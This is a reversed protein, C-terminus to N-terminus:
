PAALVQRLQTVVSDSLVLPGGLVVIRRPQLALLAKDTVTPLSAAQTLLLPGGLQGAAAGGTLADPYDYGNAVYAVPVGAPLLASIAAATAYRDPGAIRDVTSGPLITRIAALVADAVVLTGGLVHVTGPKLRALETATSEPLAGYKTLLVPGGLITGVAGAALGDPMDDGSVVFAIPAGSPFAGSSVAAATAYRDGGAWRDLTVGPLLAQVAAVVADSVVASGGLVIVRTPALRKLETATTSPLTTAQTLLIPAGLLGAAPGGALADVLSTGSTLFATSSGGPELNASVATATGYRDSGYLRLVGFSAAIAEWYGSAGRDYGLAWMGAGALGQSRVLAYKALLSRENDFYTEQWAQTTPDQVAFWASQEVTDYQITTGSPLTALDTGPFFASGGGTTSAHLANSATPWTLGYYPLGVIIRGAPVGHSAYSALSGTLSLSGGDYRVLPSISGAPSSGSSRYAYGMLFVRDAGADTVARAMSAGSLNGNTAVTLRAAPNAAVLAARLQKAFAGYATFDTSYMLEVDLSVGDLGLAKVQGVAQSIAAQQATASTLFAHNATANDSGPRLTLDVRVGAAHADQVITTILAGRGSGTLTATSVNGNGDFYAAFLAITSLLDYHLYADTGGDIEWYPLYGYVEASLGHKLQSTTLPAPAAVAPRGMGAGLSVAAVGAALVLAVFRRRQPVAM